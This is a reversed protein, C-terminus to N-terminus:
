APAKRPRGPKRGKPAAAGDVKASGARKPNAKGARPASKAQASPARLQGLGLNKAFQSRAASYSAAVMPYDAPLGWKERYAQPTLDRIALHRKLTKYGKGDEFSILADPTISKRIQAGTLKEPPAEANPDVQATPAGVGQLSAAIQSIVAAIDTQNVHVNSFYAASVEAVLERLNNDNDTV